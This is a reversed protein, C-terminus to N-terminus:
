QMLVCFNMRIKCCIYSKSLSKGDHQQAHGNASHNLQTENPFVLQGQCDNPDDAIGAALHLFNQDKQKPNRIYTITKSKKYIYCPTEKAIHM